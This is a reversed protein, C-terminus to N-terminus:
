IESCGNLELKQPTFALKLGNPFLIGLSKLERLWVLSLAADPVIVIAKASKFLYIFMKKEQWRGMKRYRLHTKRARRAMRDCGGRALTM